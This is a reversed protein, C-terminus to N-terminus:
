SPQVRVQNTLLEYSIIGGLSHSYFSVIGGMETFKPHRNLFEYYLANIRDTVTDM